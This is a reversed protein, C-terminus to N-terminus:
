GRERAKDLSRVYPRGIGVAKAGLAVAKLVDTGKRVGGDVYIECRDMVWPCHRRIELLTEAAPPAGICDVTLVPVCLLFCNPEPEGEVQRGGHNSLYIGDVGRVACLM